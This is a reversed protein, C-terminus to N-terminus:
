TGKKFFNEGGRRQRFGRSSLRISALDIACFPLPPHQRLGTRCPHRMEGLGPSRDILVTRASQSHSNDAAMKSSVSENVATHTFM